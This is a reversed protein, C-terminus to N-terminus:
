NLMGLSAAREGIRAAVDLTDHMAQKRLVARVVLGFDECCLQANDAKNQSGCYPCNIINTRGNMAARIQSEIAVIRADASEAQM